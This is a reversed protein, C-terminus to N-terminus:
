ERIELSLNGKALLVTQIANNTLRVGGVSLTDITGSVFVNKSVEQNCLMKQIMLQSELIMEKIPFRLFPKVKSIIIGHLLWEATNHLKNKTALDFDLDELSITASASDYHVRGVVYIKGRYAGTLDLSVVVYGDQGYVNVDLIIVERKGASFSKGM